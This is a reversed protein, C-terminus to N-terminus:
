KGKGKGEMGKRKKGSKKEGGKRKGEEKEEWEETKKRHGPRHTWCKFHWIEM